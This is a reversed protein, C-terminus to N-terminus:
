SYSRYITALLERRSFEIIGEETELFIEDFNRTNDCQIRINRGEVAENLTNLNEKKYGIHEPLKKENVLFTLVGSKETKELVHQMIKVAIRSLIRHKLSPDHLLSDSSIGSEPLGVRIVPKNQLELYVLAAELILLATKEDPLLVKKNKVMAELATNPFVQLPYLRFFDTGADVLEKLGKMFGKETEEPCGVMLQSGVLLREKKLLKIADIVTEASYDRRLNKLASTEMSQVGLEVTTVGYNKLLKIVEPSIYSPHTSVRMAEPQQISNDRATQLLREQESAPLATFTGGYFAVEIERPSKTYSLYKNIEGEIKERDPLSSTVEGTITAQDCYVCREPCGQFPIFIPIILRRV